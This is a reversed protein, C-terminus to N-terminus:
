NKRLFEEYIKLQAEYISRDQPNMALANEEAAIAEKVKGNAFLAAALTDWIHPAKKLSIAKRALSLARQPDRLNNEKSVALLWALNNLIDANHPDLALAKEYMRSANSFQKREFYANGISLYRLGDEATKNQKQNLYTEYVSVNVIHLGHNFVADNFQFVALGTVIFCILYVAIGKFVKRDHRKIWVPSQECRKM